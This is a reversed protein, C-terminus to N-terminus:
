EVKLYRQCRPQSQDLWQNLRLWTRGLLSLGACSINYIHTPVERLDIIQCNNGSKDRFYHYYPTRIMRVPVARDLDEQRALMRNVWEREEKTLIAPGNPDTM